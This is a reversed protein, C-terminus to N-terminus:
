FYNKEFLYNRVYDTIGEELSHLPLDYGQEKLKSMSACTFYQYNERIDIPMDIYNIRPKIGMAKFVSTGLDEFTRAEGTGVNYIGSQVSNKNKYLFTCIKLVDKVYIFDRKQQGDGFDPHHSKFLDLRKNVRIQNFAHFVVSAMRGKHYENPGYVNFFKLGAWFPPTKKQQRIWKDFNNKSLGYANLPELSDIIDENDEYGMRGDGYTAASSAYILPINYTSCKEWIRKSYNLNLRDFLDTNTETTDTRAGLHFIFDIKEHNEDFYGLFANRDICSVWNSNNYNRDKARVSFNDVIILPLDPLIQNLYSMLASAIFGAAGTIVVM